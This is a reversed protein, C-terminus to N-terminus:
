ELTVCGKEKQSQEHGDRYCKNLLAILCNNVKQFYDM